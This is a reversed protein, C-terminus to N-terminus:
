KNQIHLQAKHFSEGTQKMAVSSQIGEVNPGTDDKKRPQKADERRLFQAEKSYFCDLSVPPKGALENRFEFDSDIGKSPAILRFNDNPNSIEVCAAHFRELYRRLTEGRAQTVSSLINVDM